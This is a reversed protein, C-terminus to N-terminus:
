LYAWEVWEGERFALFFHNRERPPEGAAHM